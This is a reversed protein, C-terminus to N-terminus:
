EKQEKVVSLNDLFYLWFVNMYINFLYYESLCYFQMIIFLGCIIFDKKKIATVINKRYLYFLLICTAIGYNLLIKMYGNDLTFNYIINNGFINVAYNSFYYYQSNLRGTMITDLERFFTSGTGYLITSIITFLLLILFINQSLFKFVKNNLINNGKKSISYPIFSAIIALVITRSNTVKYIFIALLIGIIINLIKYKKPSIVIYEFFLMMIFLAFTNPHYFGYSMREVGDRIIIFESNAYGLFYMSLMFVLLFIKIKFDCRIIKDFSLGICGILVTIFELFITTHSQYYSLASIIALSILIIFTAFSLKLHKIKIFFSFTLLLMGLTKLAILIDQLFIVNVCINSIQILSFGLVFLLLNINIKM